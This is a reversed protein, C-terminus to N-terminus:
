RAALRRALVVSLLATVLMPASWLSAGALYLFDWRDDPSACSAVGIVALAFVWAQSLWTLRRVSRFAVAEVGAAFAHVLAILSVGTLAATALTEPAGLALAWGVAWAASVLSAAVLASRLALHRSPGRLMWLDEPAIELAWPFGLAHQAAVLASRLPRGDSLRLHSLEARQLQARLADGLAPTPSKAAEGLAAALTDAEEPTWTADLAGLQEVLPPHGADSPSPHLQRPPMLSM